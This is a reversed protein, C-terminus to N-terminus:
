PSRWSIGEGFPGDDRYFVPLVALSCPQERLHDVVARYFGVVAPELGSQYIKLSVQGTRTLAALQRRSTDYVLEDTQAMPRPRSIESNRLWAGDVTVDLEVHRISMLAFSLLRATPEWTRGMPVAGLPFPRARSGDRYRVPVDVPGRGPVQAVFERLTDTLVANPIGSPVIAEPPQGAMGSPARGPRPSEVATRMAVELQGRFRAQIAEKARMGQASWRRAPPLEGDGREPLVTAGPAFPWVVEVVVAGPVARELLRRVEPHAASSPPATDLLASSGRGVPSDSMTWPAGAARAALALAELASQAREYRAVDIANDAPNSTARTLASRSRDHLAMAEDRRSGELAILLFLEASM